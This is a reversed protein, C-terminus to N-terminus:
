PPDARWNHIRFGVDMYLRRQKLQVLFSGSLSSQLTAFLHFPIQFQTKVKVNCISANQVRKYELCCVIVKENPVIRPTLNPLRSIHVGSFGLTKPQM